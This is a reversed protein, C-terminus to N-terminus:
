ADTPPRLRAEAYGCGHIARDGVIDARERERRLETIRIRGWIDSGCHVRRQLFPSEFRKSLAEYLTPPVVGGPM